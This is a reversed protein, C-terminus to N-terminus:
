SSFQVHSAYRITGKKYYLFDSSTFLKTVLLAFHSDRCGLSHKPLSTSKYLSLSESILQSVCSSLAHGSGLCLNMPVLIGAIFIFYLERNSSTQLPM